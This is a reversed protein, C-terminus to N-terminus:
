AKMNVAIDTPYDYAAGDAMDVGAGIVGGFVLNGFAMGKTSSAVQKLSSKYGPKTCTVALSEFSRHVVASGPTSSIYWKGKNNELSCQAGAPSTTVSVPQNQGNVISACGTSLITFGILGSFLVINKISNQM